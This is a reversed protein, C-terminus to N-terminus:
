LLCARALGEGLQDLGHGVRQAPEHRVAPVAALVEVAFEAARAHEGRRDVDHGVAGDVEAAREAHHAADTGARRGVEVEDQGAGGVGPEADVELAVRLHVVRPVQGGELLAEDPEQFVQRGVGGCGQVLGGQERRVFPVADERLPVVGRALHGVRRQGPQEGRLGGAGRVVLGDCVLSARQRVGFQVAAGLLQGPVQDGASGARLAEDRDGDGPRRFEDDGQEGHQLRARRVDGDVGAIRRVADRVDQVVRAGHEDQGRRVGLLPQRVVAGGPQDEVSRGAGRLGGPRCRRRREIRPVGGVDDVRGPGGAPGLTHHDGVPRDDVAQGPHLVGVAEIRGVPHQLLGRGAEVHGHPLEEPGEDLAGGQDDRPGLAMQVRGIQGVDDAALADGGEVEHRRHEVHEQTLGGRGCQRTQAPDEAAALSERGLQACPELGHRVDRQVVQVPGRLGGDVHRVPRAGLVRAGARHRDAARHPVGPHLHEVGRQARHGRAHGALEVDGTDLEGAAVQAAGAETGLAEGGVRVAPRAAPHVARAVECAPVVVAAEVVEAAGVLLDLQAAEADFEALDLGGEDPLRLDALGRHHQALVPGAVLAEDGVGNGRAVGPGAGRCEDGPQALQQGVVHDGRRVDAQRFQRDGRVALEVAPGQGDGVARLPGAPPGRAGRALLQQARQEGLDEPHVRDADVVAEELQAAVRQERRLQDAADAGGEPRLQRDLPDELRRAHRLEGHREVLGAPGTRRDGGPLPGVAKREGEGLSAQPEDM